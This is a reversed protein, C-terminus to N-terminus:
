NSGYVHLIGSHINNKGPDTPRYSIRLEDNVSYVASVLQLFASSGSSFLTLSGSACPGYNGIRPSFSNAGDRIVLVDDAGNLKLAEITIALRFNRPAQIKWTCSSDSSGDPFSPTTIM